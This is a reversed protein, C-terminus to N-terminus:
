LSRQKALEVIPLLQQARLKLRKREREDTDTRSREKFDDRVKRLQAVNKKSAHRSAGHLYIAFVSDEKDVLREIIKGVNSSTRSGNLLRYATFLKDDIALSQKFRRAARAKKREKRPLKAEAAAEEPTADPAVKVNAFGDLKKSPLGRQVASLHAALQDYRQVREDFYQVNRQRFAIKLDYDKKVKEIKPVEPTKQRRKKSPEAPRDALVIEADKCSDDKPAAKKPKAKEDKAMCSEVTVSSTSAAAAKECSKTKKKLDATSSAFWEHTRAPVKDFRAKTDKKAQTIVREADKAVEAIEGSFGALTAKTKKLLEEAAKKEKNKLRALSKELATVEAAKAAKKAELYASYTTKLEAAIGDAKQRWSNASANKSAQAALYSMEYSGYRDRAAKYAKWAISGKFRAIYSPAGYADWDGRGAELDDIEKQNQAKFAKFATVTDKIQKDLKDNNRSNGTTTIRIATTM